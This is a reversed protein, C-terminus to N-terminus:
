AADHSAAQPNQYTITLQGDAADVRITAGEQIDSSLLARGIRTEVERAIHRRLPRAGYVPDYGERAILWRAAETVELTIRRDALRAGLDDFM